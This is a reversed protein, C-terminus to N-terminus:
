DIHLQADGHLAIQLLVLSLVAGDGHFRLVGLAGGSHPPQAGFRAQPGRLAHCKRMHSLAWLVTLPLTNRSGRGKVFGVRLSWACPPRRAGKNSTDGRPVFSPLTLTPVDGQLLHSAMPWVTLPSRQRKQQAGTPASARMPGNGGRLAPPCKCEWGAGPWARKTSRALCPAGPRAWCRPGAPSLRLPPLLSCQGDPPHSRYAARSAAPDPAAAWGGTHSFGGRM